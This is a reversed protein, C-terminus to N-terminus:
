ATKGITEGRPHQKIQTNTTNGVWQEHNATNGGHIVQLITVVPLFPQGVM